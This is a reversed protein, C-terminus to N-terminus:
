WTWRVIFVFPLWNWLGTAITETFIYEEDAAIALKLLFSSPEAM